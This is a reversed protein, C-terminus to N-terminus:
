RFAVGKVTLIQAGPAQLFFGDKAGPASLRDPSTVVGPRLVGRETVSAPLVVVGGTGATPAQDGILVGAIVPIILVPVIGIAGVAKSLCSGMPDVGIVVLWLGDKVSLRLPEKSHLQLDIPGPFIIVLCLSDYLNGVHIPQLMDVAFMVARQIIAKLDDGMGHGQFVVLLFHGPLRNQCLGDTHAIGAMLCIGTAEM